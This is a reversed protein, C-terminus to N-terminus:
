AMTFSAGMSVAPFSSGTLDAHEAGVVAGHRGGLGASVRARSRWGPWPLAVSGGPVCRDLWAGGVHGPRLAGVVAADPDGRRQGAGVGFAILLRVSSCGLCISGGAQNWVVAMGWLALLMLPVFLAESLLLASMVIFYPHLATLGAAVLPVTWAQRPRTRWGPQRDRARRAGGPDASLGALRDGDGARGSGAPGGPSPGGARGPLGGPVRPYGPTRLAFHPIDGWEVIEYLTGQRITGALWWYYEPTRSSASEARRGGGSTGSWAWQRRWGSSLALELIRGLSPAPM